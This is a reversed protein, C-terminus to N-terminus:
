NSKKENIAEHLKQWLETKSHADKPLKGNQQDIQWTAKTISSDFYKDEIFDYIIPKTPDLAFDTIADNDYANLSLVNLVPRFMTINIDLKDAQKLMAIKEAETFEKM